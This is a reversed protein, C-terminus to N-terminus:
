ACTKQCVGLIVNSTMNKNVIKSYRGNLTV